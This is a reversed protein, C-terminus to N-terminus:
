PECKNRAINSAENDLKWKSFLSIANKSDNYPNWYHPKVGIESYIGPSKGTFYPEKKYDWDSLGEDVYDHYKGEEWNNIGSFTWVKALGLLDIQNIPANDLYSYLSLGGKEGVPDRSVWRGVEPLYFRYGYYYLGSEEDLYKSSFRYPNRQM